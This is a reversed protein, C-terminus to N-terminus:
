CSFWESLSVKQTVRRRETVILKFFFTKIYVSLRVYQIESSYSLSPVSDGCKLESAWGVTKIKNTSILKSIFSSLLYTKPECTHKTTVAQRKSGSTMNPTQSPNLLPTPRLLHQWAPQTRFITTTTQRSRYDDYWLYVAYVFPFLAILFLIYVETTFPM